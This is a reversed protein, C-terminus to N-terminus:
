RIWPWTTLLAQHELRPHAERHGAPLLNHAAFGKTFLASASYQIIFDYRKGSSSFPLMFPHHLMCYTCRGSPWVLLASCRSSPLCQVTVAAVMCLILNLQLYFQEYRAHTLQVMSSDLQLVQLPEKPQTVPGTGSHECWVIPHSPALKKEWEKHTCHRARQAKNAILGKVTSGMWCILCAFGTAKVICSPYVYCCKLNAWPCRQWACPTSFRGGKCCRGARRGQHCPSRM